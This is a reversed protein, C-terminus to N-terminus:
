PLFTSKAASQAQSKVQLAQHNGSQCTSNPPSPPILFPTCFSTMSSISRMRAKRGKPPLSANTLLKSTDIQLQDVTKNYSTEVTVDYTSKADIEGGEFHLKSQFGLKFHGDIGVSYTVDDSDSSNITPSHIGLFSNNDFTFQSGTNWISQNDATFDVSTTTTKHVYELPISVSGVQEDGNSTEKSWANVKLAVNTNGDEPLTVVFTQTLTGDTTTPDVSEPTVTVGAAQLKALDDIAIRDIFESGDNDTQKATVKIKMQNVTDGPSTEVVFDPVDAVAELTVTATAFDTGGHGDSIIYVFSDTGSFDETPTYLATKGDAAIAVTGHSPNVDFGTITLVDGVDADTDNVLVALTVPVATTSPSGLGSAGDEFIKNPAGGFTDDKADPAAPALFVLKDGVSNLRSGFLVHAIDDLTLPQTADLTFHVPGTIFDKGKGPTGFAIGVDFPNAAGHFNNGQGLDIM